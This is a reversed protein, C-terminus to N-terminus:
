VPLRTPTALRAMCPCCLCSATPRQPKSSAAPTRCSLTASCRTQCHTLGATPAVWAGQSLGAGAQRGRQAPQQPRPGRQAAHPQAHQQEVRGGADDQGDDPLTPPAPAPQRCVCRRSSSRTTHRCQRLRKSRGPVQGASGRNSMHTQRLVADQLQRQQRAGASPMRATNKGKRAGLGRRAPMCREAAAAAAAALSAHRRAVRRAAVGPM